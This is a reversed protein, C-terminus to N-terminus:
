HQLSISNNLNDIQQPSFGNRLLEFDKLNVNSNIGNGVLQYVSRSATIIFFYELDLRIIKSTSVYEGASFRYTFDEIITGWLVSGIAKGNSVIEVIQWNKVLTKM